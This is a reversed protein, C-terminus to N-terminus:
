DNKWRNVYKLSTMVAQIEIENKSLYNKYKEIDEPRGWREPCVLCIKFKEKILSYNRKNLPLKTNTDVWVWNVLPKEKEIQSLTFEIPEAESFRSALKRFKLNRTAYYFFPFEVDLLFYNQINFKKAIEIIEKEYGTEKINFVILKHKYHKLFEKIDCYEKSKELPNHSMLIRDKDGRLDVEIGYEIPIKKLKKITNVRHIIKIM